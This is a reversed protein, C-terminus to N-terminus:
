LILRFATNIYAAIEVKRAKKTRRGTLEMNKNSASYKDFWSSVPLLDQNEDLIAQAKQLGLFYALIERLHHSGEVKVLM